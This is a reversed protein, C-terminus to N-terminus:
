VLVSKLAGDTCVITGKYDSDALLELHNNKKLSPGRGIIIASNKSYSTPSDPYPNLEGASSEQWIYNLNLAFNQVWEPFSELHIKEMRKEIENQLLDNQHM